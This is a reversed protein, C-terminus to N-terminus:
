DNNIMEVKSKQKNEKNKEVYNYINVYEEKTLVYSPLVKENYTELGYDIDGDWMKVQLFSWKLEGIKVDKNWLLCLIEYDTMNNDEKM